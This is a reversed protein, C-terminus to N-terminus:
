AQAVVRDSDNSYYRSSELHSIITATATRKEKCSWVYGDRERERERERKNKFLAAKGTKASRTDVAVSGQSM